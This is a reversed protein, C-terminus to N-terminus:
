CVEISILSYFVTWSLFQTKLLDKIYDRLDKSNRLTLKKIKSEMDGYGYDHSLVYNKM